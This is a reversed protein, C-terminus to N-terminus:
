AWSTLEAGARRMPSAQCTIQNNERFRAAVKLTPLPRSTPRRHRAARRRGSARSLAPRHSTPMGRTVSARYSTRPLDRGLRAGVHAAGRRRPRARSRSRTSSGTVRVGCSGWGVAVDDREVGVYRRRQRAPSLPRARPQTSPPISPTTVRGRRTNQTMRRLQPPQRPRPRKHRRRLVRHRTGTIRHRVHRVEGRPIRGRHLHAALRHQRRIHEHPNHTKPIPRRHPISRLHRIGLQLELRRRPRAAAAPTGAPRLCPPDV